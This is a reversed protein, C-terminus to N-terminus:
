TQGCNKEPITEGGGSTNNLVDKIGGTLAQIFATSDSGGPSPVGATRSSDKDPSALTEAEKMIPLQYLNEMEAESRSNVIFPTQSIKTVMRWETKEPTIM